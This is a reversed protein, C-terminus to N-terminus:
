QHSILLLIQKLPIENIQVPAQAAQSETKEATRKFCPEIMHLNEFLRKPYQQVVMKSGFIENFDRALRLFYNECKLIM